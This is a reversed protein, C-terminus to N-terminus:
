RELGRGTRDMRSRRSRTMRVPVARRRRDGARQRRHAPLGQAAMEQQRRQESQLERLKRQMASPLRHRSTPSLVSSRKYSSLTKEIAEIERKCRRHALSEFGHRSLVASLNDYRRALEQLLYREIADM